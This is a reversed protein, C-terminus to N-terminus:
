DLAEICDDIVKSHIVSFQKTFTFSFLPMENRNRYERECLFCLHSVTRRTVDVDAEENFRYTLKAIIEADNSHATQKM